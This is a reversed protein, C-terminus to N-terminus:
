EFSLREQITFEIPLTSRKADLPFERVSADFPRLSSTRDFYAQFTLLLLERLREIEARLNRKDLINTNGNLDENVVILAFTFM